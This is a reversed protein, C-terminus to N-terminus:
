IRSSATFPHIWSELVQFILDGFHVKMEAATAACEIRFEGTEYMVNADTGPRPQTVFQAVM